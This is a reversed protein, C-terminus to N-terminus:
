LEVELNPIDKRTGQVYYFCDIPLDDAEVVLVASLSVDAVVLNQKAGIPTLLVTITDEQVLERWYDPLIIINSRLRGRVYVSHEPGEVVGHQLKRGPKTPHDILFSKSTAAFSGNVELKHGPADTGVGVNEGDDFVQSATVAGAVTIKALRNIVPSALTAKSALAADLGTVESTSHTHASPPFTTPTGTLASWTGNFSSTGAGIVARAAAADSAGILARGTATSDTLQSSTHSHTAAAKGDLAAGLGTVESITHTHSAPAGGGVEIVNGATDKSFLKKDALNIAIEGPQLDAASPAKGAVSSRKHIIRAM